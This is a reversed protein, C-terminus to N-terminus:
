RSSSQVTGNGDAIWVSRIEPYEAVVEALYNHLDQSAQIEDGSMSKIREDILAIVLADTQFVKLAHERVSDAGRDVNDQAERLIVLRDQWGVVGFLALPVIISALILIIQARPRLRSRLYEQWNLLTASM